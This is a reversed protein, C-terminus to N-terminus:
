INRAYQSRIQNNLITDLEELGERGVFISELLGPQLRGASGKRAELAPKDRDVPKWFM